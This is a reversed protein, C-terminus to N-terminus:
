SGLGAWTESKRQVIHPAVQNSKCHRVQSGSPAGTFSHQTSTLHISPRSNGSGLLTHLQRHGNMDTDIWKKLLYNKSGSSDLLQLQLPPVATMSVMLIEIMAIHHVTLHFQTIIKNSKRWKDWWFSREPDNGQPTPLHASGVEDMGPDLHWWQLDLSDVFSSSGVKPLHLNQVQFSFSIIMGRSSLAFIYWTPIHNSTRTRIINSSIYVFQQIIHTYM